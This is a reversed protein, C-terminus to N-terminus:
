RRRRWGASDDQVIQETHLQLRHCPRARRTHHRAGLTDGRELRCGANDPKRQGLRQSHSGHAGLLAHRHVRQQHSHGGADQHNEHRCLRGAFEQATHWAASIEGSGPKSKPATGLTGGCLGVIVSAAQATSGCLLLLACALMKDIKSIHM